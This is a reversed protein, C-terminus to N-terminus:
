PLFFFTHASILTQSTCGDCPSVAAERGKHRALKLCSITTSSEHRRHPAHLLHHGSAFRAIPQRASQRIWLNAPGTMGANDVYRAEWLTQRPLGCPPRANMSGPISPRASLSFSFAVIAHTFWPYRELLCTM